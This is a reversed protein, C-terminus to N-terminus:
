SRCQGAWVGHREEAADAYAGCELLVPCRGCGEAAAQVESATTGFWLDPNVACPQAVEVLAASLARWASMASAELLESTM